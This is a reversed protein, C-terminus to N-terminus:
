PWSVLDLPLGLAVEFILACLGALVVALVAVRWLVPRPEAFRALFTLAVTAPVLGFPEVMLAFVLLSLAVMAAARGKFRPLPAARGVALVMTGVGAALLVVGLARPFFGPGINAMRGMSYNGTEWVVFAGLGAVLFGGLLDARDIGQPLRV